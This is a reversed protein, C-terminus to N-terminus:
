YIKKGKHGQWNKKGGFILFPSFTQNGEEGGSDAFLAEYQLCVFM